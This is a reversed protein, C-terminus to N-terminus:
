QGAPMYYGKAQAIKFLDYQIKRRWGCRSFPRGSSSMALRPVPMDAISNKLMSLVDNVIDKEQMM